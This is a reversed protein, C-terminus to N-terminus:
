RTTCGIDKRSIRIMSNSSNSLRRSDAGLPRSRVISFGTHGQRKDRQLENTIGKSNIPYGGKYDM